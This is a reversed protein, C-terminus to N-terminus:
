KLHNKANSGPAMTITVENYLMKETTQMTKHLLPFHRNQCSIFAGTLLQTEELPIQFYLGGGGVMDEGRGLGAM